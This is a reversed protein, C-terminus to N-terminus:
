EWGDDFGRYGPVIGLNTRLELCEQEWGELHSRLLQIPEEEPTDGGLLNNLALPDRLVDYAENGYDPDRIYSYFNTRVAQVLNPHRGANTGGYNSQGLHGHYNADGVQSFLCERLPEM